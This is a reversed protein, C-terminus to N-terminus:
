SCIEGKEIKLPISDQFDDFSFEKKHWNRKDDELGIMKFMRIISGSKIGINNSEKMKTFREIEVKGKQLADYFSEKNNMFRGVGKSKCVATDDEKFIMYLKPKIFLGGKLKHELEWDGLETGEEFCPRNVIASDTDCYIVNEKHQRIHGLLRNRGLATTYESWIPFSYKFPKAQKKVSIFGNFLDGNFEDIRFDHLAKNNYYPVGDKFFVNKLSIIEQMNNPNTGWKGFLGSNMLVKVMAQYDSKEEKYKKRLKYLYKIAERFPKCNNRYYIMEGINVDYGLDMAKRIELNTFWGSFSGYGFILKNEIKTGLYPMYDYPAILNCSCIGEYNEVMETNGKETHAYSSPDPYNGNGDVGDVMVRPYSSRYDYYWLKGDYFGRKFVQTMGGKFSGQFHKMVMEDSERKMPVNQHNRRWYDMGTSGITLKMRMNHDTCFDKMKKAFLYTIASDNLNYDTLEKREKSNEPIRSILGIDTKEFTSPHAMKELGVIKGLKSLSTRMFNLTDNFIWKRRKDNEKESRIAAILGNNYILHFKDIDENYLQLFDFELNTAFIQSGRFKRSLLYEKMDEKDWFVKYGNEGVVSGMLFEQEYCNVNKGSIRKFDKKIHITEVDFGYVDFKNEAHSRLPFFLSNYYEKATKM